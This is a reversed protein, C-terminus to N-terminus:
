SFNKRKYGLKIHNLFQLNECDRVPYKGDATLKNVFVEIIEFKWFPSTKSTIKTLLSWFINDFYERASKVITQWGNVRQSDFSTRFRRKRSLPKVLDKVTQLIRFENAIVIIKKQFINLIQHLNWLHFLFILFLYENKLSNWKFLSSYM